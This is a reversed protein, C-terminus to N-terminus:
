YLHSCFPKNWYVGSDTTFACLYLCFFNDLMKIALNMLKNIMLIMETSDTIIVSRLRKFLFILSFRWTGQVKRWIKLCGLLAMFVKMEVDWIMKNRIKVFEKCNHWCHYTYRDDEHEEKKGTRIFPESM